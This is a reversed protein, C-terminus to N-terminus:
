GGEVAPVFCGGDTWGRSEFQGLNCVLTSVPYYDGLQDYATPWAGDRTTSPVSTTFSDQVVMHRMIFAVPVGAEVRLVKADKVQDSNSLDATSVIVTWYGDDDLNLGTLGDPNTDPDYVGSGFSGNVCSWNADEAPFPWIKKDVCLSYYRMDYDALGDDAWPVPSAGRPVRPAKGRYVYVEEPGPVIASALYGAVPNSWVSNQARDTPAAFLGAPPCPNADGGIFYCGNNARSVGDSAEVGFFSSHMMDRSTTLRDNTAPGYGADTRSLPLVNFNTGQTMHEGPGGGSCETGQPELALELTYTDDYATSADQWPNVSGADPEIQYDTNYSACVVGDPNEYYYFDMDAGYIVHSMFLQEQFEGKIEVRDLAWGRRDPEQSANFPVAWYTASSDPLFINMGSQAPETSRDYDRSEYVSTNIRAWWSCYPFPTQLRRISGPNPGLERAMDSFLEEVTDSDDDNFFDTWLKVSTVRAPCDPLTTSRQRGNRVNTQHVVIEPPDADIAMRGDAPIYSRLLLIRVDEQVNDTGEPVDVVEVNPKKAGQAVKAAPVRSSGTSVEDSSNDTAVVLGSGMVALITLVHLGYKPKWTM